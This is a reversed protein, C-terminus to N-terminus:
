VIMRLLAGILNGLINIYILMGVTVIISTIKDCDLMKRFLFSLVLLLWLFLGLSAIAILVSFLLEGLSVSPMNQMSLNGQLESSAYYLLPLMAVQVYAQVAMLSTASQLFRNQKGFLRLLLYLYSFQLLILLLIALGSYNRQMNGPIIHIWWQLQLLFFYAASFFWLATKSYPTDAPSRQFCILQWYIALIQKM